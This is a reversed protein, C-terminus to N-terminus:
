LYSAADGSSYELSIDRPPRISVSQVAHLLLYPPRTADAAREAAWRFSGAGRMVAGEGPNTPQASPADTTTDCSLVVCRSLRPHLHHLRRAFDHLRSNRATHGGGHVELVGTHWVRPIIGRHLRYRFSPRPFFSPTAPNTKSPLMIMRLSASACLFTPTGLVASRAPLCSM